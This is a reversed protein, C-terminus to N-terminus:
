QNADILDWEVLQNEINSIDQICQPADFLQGDHAIKNRRRVGDRIEGWNNWILSDKSCDMLTGLKDSKCSFLAEDRGKILVQRLVDFALLLPLNYLVKALAPATIAGGAFTATVLLKMRDRMKLVGNWEDRLENTAQSTLLM